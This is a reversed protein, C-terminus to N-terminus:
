LIMFGGKLGTTGSKRRVSSFSLDMSTLNFKGPRYNKWKRRNDKRGGTGQTIGM